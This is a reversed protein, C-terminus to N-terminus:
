TQTEVPMAFRYGVGRVTKIYAPNTPDDELKARLWSMHVDLTRTDGLWDMGWVTDFLEDRTVVRDAHTMLLALIEFEKQRLSVEEGQRYVTRTALNVELAGSRLRPMATFHADLSVRRLMARVHAHLAAFSFPKTLYDDAGLELGRVRDLTDDMATLMIIPVPSQQRIQQCVEWGSMGPMMVDLIVVDPHGHLALTLGTPGDHAASVRYGANEFAQQLPEVLKRDDDIILIHAPM